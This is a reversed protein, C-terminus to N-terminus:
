LCSSSTVTNGGVFQLNGDVTANVTNFPQGYLSYTFPLTIPFVPCSNCSSGPVLFTGPEINAGVSSEIVYNSGTGCTPSASPTPTTTLTPTGCGLEWFTLKLGNNLENLYTHCATPNNNPYQTYGQGQGLARQVGITAGNGSDAVQGYIIDFRNQNEYLRVEFDFMPPGSSCCIQAKWEVNFVQNPAVGTTSTYIGCPSCFLTNLSRWYAFIAYNFNSNPLCSSSTVTNGGVFQLNGDVTANVTNFPQGYLSYTFPLTIPIAQCSNCVSGPIPTGTGPVIAAGLSSEIVYDSGVGCTPIPTPTNTVTVTATPATPTNSPTRTFTMTPTDTTTRTSTSTPTDTAFPANASAAIPALSQQHSPRSALAGQTLLLIGAAVILLLSIMLLLQFRIRNKSSAYARSAM